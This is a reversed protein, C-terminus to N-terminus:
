VIIILFHLQWRIGPQIPKSLNDKFTYNLQITWGNNVTKSNITASTIYDDPNLESGYIKTVSLFLMILSTIVALFISKKKM